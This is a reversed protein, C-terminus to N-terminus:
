NGTPYGNEEICVPPNGSEQKLSHIKWLGCTEEHVHISMRPGYLLSSREQFFPDVVAVPVSLGSTLRGHDPAIAEDLQHANRPTYFLM